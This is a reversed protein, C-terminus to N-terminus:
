NIERRQWSIKGKNQSGFDVVRKLVVAKVAESAPALLERPDYVEPHHKIYNKVAGSWAERLETDINIKAVGSEIVNLVERKTSNSAGHLVLPVPVVAAIEKLLKINLKEGKIKQGHVNGISIALSDCNTKAVFEKAAGPDTYKVIGKISEERGGVMGLEAELTVGAKHALKVLKKTAETNESFSLKSGDFMVSSHMKREIVMELYEPSTVHDMNIIVPIDANEAKTRIVAMLEDFGAYDLAKRSTQIIVPAHKAQAADIIANTFELNTTNFAGIAFGETRAKALLARTNTIM